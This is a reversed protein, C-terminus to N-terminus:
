FHVLLPKQNKIHRGVLAKVDKGKEPIHRAAVPLFDPNNLEPFLIMVEECAEPGIAKLAERGTYLSESPAGESFVIEHNDFLMHFYSVSRLDQDVFISPIEILKHAAILAEHASFIQKAIPSSILVRHQPSLYLGRKPLGHGLAGAVTRIPQLKPKLALQQQTVGKSAIWRVPHAGDDPTM